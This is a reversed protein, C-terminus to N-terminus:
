RMIIEGRLECSLYNCLCIVIIVRYMCSSMAAGVNM